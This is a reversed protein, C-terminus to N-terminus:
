MSIGFGGALGFANAEDRVYYQLDVFGHYRGWGLGMLLGPVAAFGWNTNSRDNLNCLQNALPDFSGAVPSCKVSSRLALAGLGVHPRFYAHSIALEFGLDAAIFSAGTQYEILALLPVPYSSTVGFYHDYRLGITGGFGLAYAGRLSLGPGYANVSEGTDLTTDGFAGGAAAELRFPFGPQPFTQEVEEAGAEPAAPAAPAAPADADRPQAWAATGSVLLATGGIAAVQFRDFGRM